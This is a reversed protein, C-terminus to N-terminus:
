MALCSYKQREMFNDKFFTDMKEDDNDFDSIEDTSLSVTDFIDKCESYIKKIKRIRRKREYNSLM